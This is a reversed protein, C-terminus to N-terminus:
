SPLEEVYSCPFLGVRGNTTLHGKWWTDSVKNIIAIQDNENLSLERPSRACFNYLAQCYGLISPEGTAGRQPQATHRPCPMLLPTRVMAFSKELSNSKYYEVLQNVSEFNTERSLFYREAEKQIRIHKVPQSSSSCKISLALSDSDPAVNDENRIRVLFTGDSANELLLKAPGRGMTGFFWPYTSLDEKRRQVPRSPLEAKPKRPVHPRSPQTIVAPTVHVTPPKPPARTPPSSAIVPKVVPPCPRATTPAANIKGICEKHVCKQTNQCQYGQFFVGRLLKNCVCCTTPENFTVLRFKHQNTGSDAPCVNDMALEIYEKWRLLLEQTKTAFVYTKSSESDTRTEKLVFIHQNQKDRFSQEGDSFCHHKIVLFTKYSYKDGKPKCALLLKEFLFVHRDAFTQDTSEKMKLEGDFLHKGYEHLHVNPQLFKKINTIGREIENILELNENDRKVENVYLSLDQMEELARNLERREPHNEDTKKVLEKLLLHYKLVRQMPVTLLEVLRFQMNNAKQNLDNVMLGFQKNSKCLKDMLEQAGIMKSCYDGYIVFNMKWKVFCGAVSLGTSRPNARSNRASVIDQYFGKHTELLAEFHCFIRNFDSAAMASQLPNMFKEYITSLVDVYNKETDILENICRDRVTLQISSPELPKHTEEVLVGYVDEYEDDFSDDINKYIRDSEVDEISTINYIEDREATFSEPVTKRAEKTRSL